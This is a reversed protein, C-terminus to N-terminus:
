VDCVCVSISPRAPRLSMRAGIRTVAGVGERLLVRCVQARVVIPEEEARREKPARDVRHADTDRALCLRSLTAAEPSAYDKRKRWIWEINLVM